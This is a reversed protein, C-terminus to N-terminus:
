RVRMLTAMTVMAWFDVTYASENSVREIYFPPFNAESESVVYEIQHFNIDINLQEDPM